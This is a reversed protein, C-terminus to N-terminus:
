LWPIYLLMISVLRFGPHQRFGGLRRQIISKRTAEPVKLTQWLPSELSPIMYDGLAWTSCRIPSVHDRDSEDSINRVLFLFKFM